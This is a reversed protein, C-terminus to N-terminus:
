HKVDSTAYFKGINLMQRQQMSSGLTLSVDSTYVMLTFPGICNSECQISKQNGIKNENKM